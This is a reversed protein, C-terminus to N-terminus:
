KPFIKGAGGGGAQRGWKYLRLNRPSIKPVSLFAKNIKSKAGEPSDNEFLLFPLCKCLM